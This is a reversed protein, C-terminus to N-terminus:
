EWAFVAAASAAATQKNAYQIRVASRGGDQPHDGERLLSAKHTM